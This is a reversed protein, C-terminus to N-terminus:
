PTLLYISQLPTHENALSRLIRSTSNLPWKRMRSIGVVERM